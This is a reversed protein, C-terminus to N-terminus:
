VTYSRDIHVDSFHVVRFPTKGSSTFVKPTSPAAKPFPVTYANVSPADCLGVLANCFKTATQGSVSMHRLSHAVIPGQQQIVGKCVDDDEAQFSVDTQDLPIFISRVNLTQCIAILANSFITDGLLAVPKLVGLLAHCSVCTVAQELGDLISSVVSARAFNTVALLFAFFRLWILM